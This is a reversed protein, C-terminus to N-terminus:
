PAPAAGGGSRRPAPTSHVLRARRTPRHPPRPPVPAHNSVIACAVGPPRLRRRWATSVGSWRGCAVRRLWTGFVILVAGFGWVIWLAATGFQSLWASTTSLALEVEPYFPAWAAAQSAAFEGGGTLLLAMAWATLSWLLLVALGAVWVATSLGGGRAPSATDIRVTNAM